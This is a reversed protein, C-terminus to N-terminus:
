MGVLYTHVHMHVHAWTRTVARDDKLSDCDVLHSNFSSHCRGLYRLVARRTDDLDHEVITM